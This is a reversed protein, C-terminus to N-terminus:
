SATGAAAGPPRGPADAAPRRDLEAPIELTFVAGAGPGDSAATLRGHMQQAAIACNHLGFGHGDPKTTFGHAFIRDMHEPIIGVGNDRVSLRLMDGERALGLVIRRPEASSDGLAHSANSILNVLIQLVQHRDVRLPPLAELERVVEVNRSKLSVSTIELAAEFLDQLLCSEEVAGTRSYGQQAAIINKIHELHGGVTALREGIRERADEMHRALRELYAAINGGRADDDRFRGDADVGERIMAATKAIGDTRMARLEESVLNTGVNVSNLVNGVNHLVGSAVEAMGAKRSLDLMRGQAAELERTREGVLEELHDRYRELEKTQHQQVAFLKANQISISLQAILIGLAEVRNPTFANEVLTNELYLVGILAGQHIVPACLVSRPRERQVYPDTRFRSSAADDLVVLERTRAVFHVIGASVSTAEALPTGPMIETGASRARSAQVALGEDSDLLLAGSDAGTYELIVSMLRGLLQELVIEGALANAAKMVAAFDFAGDGAAGHALEPDARTPEETGASDASGTGALERLKRAAGWLQFGACARDRYIKAFEPKGHTHWMRAALEAAIGEISLSAQRDAAAIAGDYRQTALWPDGALRAQEAEVLLRMHEFNAPCIEAWRALQSSHTALMGELEAREDAAADALLACATLSTFLSHEAVVLMGPSGALARESERAWELAGRFDGGLYRHMLCVIAFHSVMSVNGTAAVADHFRHEDFGPGNLTEAEPLEDQLWKMLQIRPVLLDGNVRDDLERLLALNREANARVEPLPRGMFCEHTTRRAAAYGAHMLDGERLGHSVSRDYIELSEELPRVWASAFMAWMLNAASRGPADAYREALGAGLRAFRDADEYRGFMGSLVVALSGYGKASTACNGHELSLTVMRCCLLAFLHFSTQIAAPLCHMLVGMLATQEPHRMEPLEALDEISRATIAAAITDFENRAGHEIDATTDPIAFGLERATAVGHALADQMRGMATCITVMQTSIRARELTSRAHRAAVAATALAEDFRAGLMLCEALLAHAEHLRDAHEAWGEEGLLSIARELCHRAIGDAASSRAKRAAALDLDALALREAPDHIADAGANLHHVIDFLIDDRRDGNRRELARGIGLHTEPVRAHPILSYAASRVREHVFAYRRHILPSDLQQPSLLEPRSQPVIFDETAAADLLDSITRTDRGAVEAVIEISFSRGAAAAIRLIERVDGPLRALNAVLLEVVNDTIETAEVRELNFAFRNAHPSFYIADQEHLTQLLKNVFFPNGASKRWVASALPAATEESAQLMDAVLSRTTPESLPEVALPEVSAGRRRHAEISRLLADCVGTSDDVDRCAMIVLLGEIRSATLLTMTLDLSAQDAHQLDDLFLVLPRDASCQARVFDVFTLVLRNHSELADLEPVPPQEGIVPELSPLIGTLVRGNDGVAELITRRSRALQEESDMLRMRMLEDFATALASFPADHNREFRGGLFRGRERVIAAGAEHVLQTKGVGAPGTVLVGRRGGRAADAYCELLRELEAERGYLTGIPEFARRVDGTGLEFAEIDGRADLADICRELDHALGRATQYRDEPSKRLLKMIISSFPGPVAADVECPARPTVALHSHVLELPDDSTFPPHGTSLEYLTVGLSYLDSRCDIRRNMRGTQEPANYALSGQGAEHRAIADARLPTANRLNSLRVLGDEARYLISIPNIDTHVFEAEHLEGLAAASRWAITLAEHLEPRRSAVLSRLTRGGFSEFVLAFREGHRVLDIARAVADTDLRRITDLEHKLRTYADSADAAEASLKVIVGLGDADRTARHVEEHPTRRICAHFTYGALGPNQTSRQM